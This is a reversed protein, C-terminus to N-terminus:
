PGPPPDPPPAPPARTRGAQRPPPDAPRRAEDVRRGGAAELEKRIKREVLDVGDHITKATQESPEIHAFRSLDELADVLRQVLDAQARTWLEAREKLARKRFNDYEAALRLYKDKLEALESAEPEAAAAADAPTQEEEVRKPEDDM